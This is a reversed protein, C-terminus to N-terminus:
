PLEHHSNSSLCTPVNVHLTDVSHLFVVLNVPTEYQLIHLNTKIFFTIRMYRIKNLGLILKATTNKQKQLAKTASSVTEELFFDAGLLSCFVIMFELSECFGESFREGGEVRSTEGSALKDKGASM